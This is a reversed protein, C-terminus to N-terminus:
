SKRTAYVLLSLGPGPFVPDLLRRLWMFLDMVKLQMKGIRARGLLRGNLWWALGASKNFSSISEIAFGAKELKDRLGARDYRRRHGAWTDLRCMLSPHQPVLLCLHGGPKLSDRM